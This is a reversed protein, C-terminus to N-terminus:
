GSGKPRENLVFPSISSLVPFGYAFLPQFNCVTLQTAGVPMMSQSLRSIFPSSSATLLPSLFPRSLLRCLNLCCAASVLVALSLRESLLRFLRLCCAVFVLVALPPSESLLPGDPPCSLLASRVITLLMLINVRFMLCTYLCPKHRFFIHAVLSHCCLNILKTHPYAHSLSTYLWSSMFHAQISGFWSFLILELSTNGIGNDM